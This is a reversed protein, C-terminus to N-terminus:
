IPIISVALLEKHIKQKKLSERGGHPHCFLFVSFACPGLNVLFSWFSYYWCFYFQSHTKSLEICLSHWFFIDLYVFKCFKICGQIVLIEIFQGLHGLMLENLRDNKLTLAPNPKTRVFTRIQQFGTWLSNWRIREQPFLGITRYYNLHSRSAAFRRDDSSCPQPICVGLAPTINERVFKTYTRSILIYLFTLDLDTFSKLEQLYLTAACHRSEVFKAALCTKLESTPM